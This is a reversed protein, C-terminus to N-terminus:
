TTQGSCAGGAASVVAEVLGDLDHPDAEAYRKPQWLSTWSRPQCGIRPGSPRQVRRGGQDWRVGGRM